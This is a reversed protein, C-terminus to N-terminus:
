GSVVSKIGVIQLYEAIGSLSPDESLHLEMDALESFFKDDYNTMTQIAESLSPITIQNGYLKIVKIGNQQFLNQIEQPSFIRCRGIGKYPAYNLESKFPTSFYTATAQNLNGM